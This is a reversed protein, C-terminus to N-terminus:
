SLEWHANTQTDTYQIFPIHHICDVLEEVGDKRLGNLFAESMDYLDLIKLNTVHELWLPAEVLEECRRIDLEELSSMAGKEVRMNKLGSLEFLWLKKLRPYGRGECCLEEGDYARDLELEVLNPLSQLAKLPDDKLRSCRLCVAVLNHLSAIWEPLKELRGILNLCRLPLPSHSLSHLDLVEEKAMSIVSFSHLHIMKEISTCLDNGDEVRLKIIGLRRLQTLNGLERIIGSEAEIHALKQLSRM